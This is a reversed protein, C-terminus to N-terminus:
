ATGRISVAPEPPSDYRRSMSLAVAVGLALLLGASLFPSALGLRHFAWGGWIPGGVRALAGLSRALGLVGGQSRSPALRSMLSFASPTYLASGIALLAAAPLLSALSHVGPLFLMGSTMSALGAVLLRGEGFRAVLRRILGAQVLVMLLGVYVFLLSTERIGFGLRRECFLALTAEMASFGFIVTGYLVLLSTLRRSSRLVARLKPVGIADEGDGRLAKTEPVSRWVLAFNGAALAAAGVPVAAPGFQSLGAGLAPGVVFGLGFAAGLWGMATARDEPATVDTVFAQAITYNAAAVGALIRAVFVVLLTQASALLVYAASSLLISALLPTRRGVRDSLQGWLPSCAFQALSYSAFLLGIEFPSAGFSAAYFPLLPLIMGFGVLDLFVTIAVALM